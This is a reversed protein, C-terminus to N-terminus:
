GVGAAYAAYAAAYASYVASDAYAAYAADAAAHAAYIADAAYAAYAADAASAAADAASAAAHSSPSQLWAKAAEIARRPRKDQPNKEFIYIVQEACFISWKVKQKHTMLRSALWSFWEWHKEKILLALIRSSDREKRSRFAEIANHCAGLKNLYAVTIIKRM